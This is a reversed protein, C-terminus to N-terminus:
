RGGFIKGFFTHKKFAGLGGLLSLGLMTWGLPGMGAFLGANAGVAGGSAGATGPAAGFLGKIGGQGINQFAKVVQMGPGQATGHAPTFAQKITQGIPTPGKPVLATNEMIPTLTSGAAQNANALLDPKQVPGQIPKTSSSVLTETPAINLDRNLIEIQEPNMGPKIQNLIDPNQAYEHKLQPSIQYRDGTKAFRGSAKDIFAPELEGTDTFTPKFMTAGPNITKTAKTQLFSDITKTGTDGLGAVTAAVQLPSVTPEEPPPAPTRAKRKAYVISM